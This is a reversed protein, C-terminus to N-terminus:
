QQGMARVHKLGEIHANELTYIRIVVSFHVNPPALARAARNCFEM